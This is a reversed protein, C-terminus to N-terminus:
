LKLVAHVLAEAGADRCLQALASMGSEPLEHLPAGFAWPPADAGEYRDAANVEGHKAHAQCATGFDVTEELRVQM